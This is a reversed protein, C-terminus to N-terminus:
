NFGVFYTFLAILITSVLIIYLLANEADMDELLRKRKDPDVMTNILNFFPEFYEYFFIIIAIMVIVLLVTAWSFLEM